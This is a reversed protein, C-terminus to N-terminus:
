LETKRGPAKYKPNEKARCASKVICKENLLAQFDKRDEESLTPAPVAGQLLPFVDSYIADYHAPTKDYYNKNPM